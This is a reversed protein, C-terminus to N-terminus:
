VFDLNGPTFQSVSSDNITLHSLSNPFISIKEPKINKNIDKFIPLDSYGVFVGNRWFGKLKNGLYTIEGNGNPLDENWIGEFVVNDNRRYIGKGRKIGYEFNGEYIDGNSYYYTGKGNFENNDFFGDYKEHQINTIIGKGCLASDAFEGIYEIGNAWKIRGKGNFSGNEVSGSYETNDSFIYTGEGTMDGMKFDGEYSEKNSIFMMKGKGNPFSNKIEGEYIDGNKFFIRGFVINGNNWIGETIINNNSLYYIGYGEMQGNTSWNGYYINNNKFKVPNAELTSINRSIYREYNLKNQQIYNHIDQSIFSNYEDLSIFSGIELLKKDLNDKATNKTKNSSNLKPVNENDTIKSFQSVIELPKNILTNKIKEIDAEDRSQNLFIKCSCGM